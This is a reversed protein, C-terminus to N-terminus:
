HLILLKFYANILLFTKIAKNLLLLVLRMQFIVQKKLKLFRVRVLRWDLTWVEVAGIAQWYVINFRRTTRMLQGPTIQTM